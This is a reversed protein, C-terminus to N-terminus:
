PKSIQMLLNASDGTVMTPLVGNWKQVAEYLVLSQSQKLAETRILMSEAEAKASILKQAAQEQITVTQNKAREAEQAAVVKAEVAKEFEDSFDINTVDFRAVNIFKTALVERVNSEIQNTVTIRNSVIDVANWGGVVNKISATVVQPILREEWNVGVTQYMEVAKSPNLSYTLVYTFTAQQVDKTYANTTTVKLASTDPFPFTRVQYSLTPISTTFPNYFYIGEKLPEKKVEGFRVEIGVEGTDVVEVGCGTTLLSTALLAVLTLNSRM